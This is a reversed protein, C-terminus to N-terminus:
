EPSGEQLKADDPHLGKRARLAKSIGAALDHMNFPKSLVTADQTLSEIERPDGTIYLHSVYGRALIQRMASIGSGEDLNGDVIMLDPECRMAAAVADAETAATACVGHGMAILLDALDMAILADDEVILVKLAETM